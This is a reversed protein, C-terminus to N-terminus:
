LLMGGTAEVIQGTVWGSKRGALYNVTEAVDSPEGVRGLPTMAIIADEGYSAIIDDAMATRTAGPAVANLRIGLPGLEVALLRTLHSLAAKSSLYASLGPLVARAAATSINVVAGQTKSLHPVAERIMAAPAVLNTLYASEFDADSTDVFAGMPAVGANNILADLKGFREIAIRLIKKRDNSSTVDACVYTIQDPFQTAVLKLPSERRGSILVRYGSEAFCHAIAAGIGTGGGTVIAVDSETVSM